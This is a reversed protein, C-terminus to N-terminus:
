VERAKKGFVKRLWRRFRGGPEVTVGEPQELPATLWGRHRQCLTAPVHGALFVETTAVPCDSTALEGSEPDVVATQVEGSAPFPLYGDGPRVAGTFRVWIPLASRAGSLAAPAGDDRGVWVVTARDPSYGCFWADRGENSTGTKGALPDALGLARASAGSGHDLVGRLVDTLLVSVGESVAREPAPLPPASLPAGGAGLVADIGHVAPRLGGAALTGYVTAMEVASLEFAGLALAPVPELPGSVGMRRATDAVAELGTELALRAAPLNRSDELAARVSIPGRFDGDDNRPEWVRGALRVAIPEDAVITAPAVAGGEFATAYVIPKFASGAQRRARGARDYQSAAWDRGGVYALIAGDRPDLSVLAAQLGGRTASRRAHRELTSLGQGVAAEAAEQDRADVTSLVTVGAGELRAIGFRDRAELRVAEAFYPARRPAVPAPAVRIPEAIAAAVRAEDVWGLSALRRLVWDRRERAHEPHAIPSTRAPSALMGALTAAEALTLQDPDRGFYARAASGVGVLNARERSGLFVSDLYARLIAEKSWRLEVLVALAAERLKRPLTRENTLCLTRVLQQTITSGGQRVDRRRVNVWAARAAGRPSVGPHSYFRDDEAALVARVLGEPLPGPPLPRCDVRSDDLYAALLRPELEAAAVAVGDRRLRTIRGGAFRVEVVGGADVGSLTPFRRLHVVLRGPEVLFRGPALEERAGAPAYGQAVLEDRVRQRPVAAGAELRLPRAYLRSPQAPVGDLRAALRVAPALMWAGLAVAVVVAAIAGALAARRLRARPTGAGPRDAAPSPNTETM